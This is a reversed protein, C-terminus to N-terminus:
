VTRTAASGRAILLYLLSGIFGLFVMLVVWLLKENSPRSSQLLDILMWLWLAFAAIGLIVVFILIGGGLVLGGAGGSNSQGLIMAIASM